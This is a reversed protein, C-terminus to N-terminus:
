NTEEVVQNDDAVSDDQNSDNKNLVFHDTAVGAGFAGAAIGVFLLPKKVKNWFRKPLSEKKEEPVSVVAPQNEVKQTEVVQVNKVEENTKNETNMAM